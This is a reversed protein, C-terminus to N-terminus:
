QIYMNGTKVWEHKAYYAKFCYLSSYSYFDVVYHILKLQEIYFFYTNLFTYHQSNNTKM